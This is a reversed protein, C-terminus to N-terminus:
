FVKFYRGMWYPLTLDIGPTETKDDTYLQVRFPNKQWLFDAYYRHEISLPFRPIKGYKPNQVYEIISFDIDKPTSMRHNRKVFQRLAERVSPAYMEKYTEPEIAIKIMDFHPNNHHGINNNLLHFADKMLIKRYEDKEFRFYSYFSIYNLNNGYYGDLQEFLGIWVPFWATEALDSSAKLAAGYKKSNIHNGIVLFTIKQYNIGTWITPFAEGGRDITVRDESIIWNNVILYDLMKEMGRAAASKIAPDKVLDYVAALGFFIGAYQDRSVGRSGQYSIWKQGDVEKQKYAEGEAIIKRAIPHEVPFVSRALLGTNGNIELLLRVGVMTRRINEFADLDNTTAYRFVQSVLYHGTWIASDVHGDYTVVNGEIGDGNIGYAEEWSTDSLTDMESDFILGWPSHNEVMKRDVNLAITELDVPIGTDQLPLAGLGPINTSTAALEILKSKEKKIADQIYSKAVENIKSRVLKLLGNIVTHNCSVDLDLDVRPTKIDKVTLYTGKTEFDANMNLKLKRVKVEYVSTDRIGAIKFRAELKIDLGWTGQFPFSMAISKKSLTTVGPSEHFYADAGYVELIQFENDKDQEAIVKNIAKKIEQIIIEKFQPVLINWTGKLDHNLGEEGSYIKLPSAQVAVSILLILGFLMKKM